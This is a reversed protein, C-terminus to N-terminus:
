SRQSLYWAAIDGATAQWVADFTVLRALAQDLSRIRHSQGFLWPHIGLGFIRGSDAAEEHITQFAECVLDPYRPTPVRRLFLMQVDDWEQHYPISVFPRGVTMLYPQDDNPWDMVYDFGAEALMRPTRTSEGFDQGLWGTPKRGSAREVAARAEAIHASEQEESMRSSIMRTAHTGHGAIEWGRRRCEAMIFPYRECASANAAVTVKLQYRDFLEFIRFIGIRNGYERQSYNKYDPFFSGLEGDQTRDRVADAPPDLERYELHLLVWLAVRAGEPWHLVPRTPLPSFPYHPHDMGPKRQVPM